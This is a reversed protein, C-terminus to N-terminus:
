PLWGRDALEPEAALADEVEAATVPRRLRVPLLGRDLLTLASRGVAGTAGVVAVRLM